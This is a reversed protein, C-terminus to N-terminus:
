MYDFCVWVNDIYLRMWLWLLTPTLGLAFAFAFFFAFFFCFCFPVGYTITRGRGGHRPVLQSASVASIM